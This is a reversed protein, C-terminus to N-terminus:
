DNVTLATIRAGCALRTLIVFLFLLSKKKSFFTWLDGLYPQYAGLSVQLLRGRIFRYEPLWDPGSM